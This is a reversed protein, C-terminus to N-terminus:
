ENILEKIYKAAVKLSLNYMYHEYPNFRKYNNVMYQLKDVFNNRDCLVGSTENIYKEKWFNVSDLVILPCGCALAEPIVRPCSDISDVCVVAVKSESYYQPIDKRPIWGKFKVHKYKSQMNKDLIGIQIMKLNKPVNSLIFSHGKIGKPHKNGVFIVDYNKALDSRPFFINDAAPKIFLSCKTNPFKRSSEKVQNKTDNLILDYERFKGNQPYFRKGAGYYIKYSKPYFKLIHDYEPFGGRCFIIDPTFNPKHHKFNPVWREVFNESYRVKRKGGWYWIEGYDETLAHALQTWMDDCDKLSNFMIQEKPRDTPVRGRLFLLKMGGGLVM